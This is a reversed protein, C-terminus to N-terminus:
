SSDLSEREEVNEFWFGDAQWDLIEACDKCCPRYERGCEPATEPFSEISAKGGYTPIM